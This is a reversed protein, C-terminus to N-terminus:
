HSSKYGCPPACSLTGTRCGAGDKEASEAEQQDCELSHSPDCEKCHSQHWELKHRMWDPSPEPPIPRAVPAMGLVLKKHILQFTCIFNLNVCCSDFLM